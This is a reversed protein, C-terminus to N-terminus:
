SFLSVADQGTQQLELSISQDYETPANTVHIGQGFDFSEKTHTAATVKLVGFPVDSAAWLTGTNTTEVVKILEPQKPDPFREKTAVIFDYRTASYSGTKVATPEVKDAKKKIAQAFDKLVVFGPGFNTAFLKIDEAKTYKSVPEKEVQYDIERIDLANKQPDELYAAWSKAPALFKVKRISLDPAGSKPILDHEIWFMKEHTAPDDTESLLASRVVDVRVTNGSTTTVLYLAYSGPRLDFQFGDIGKAKRGSGVGGCGLFWGLILISILLRLMRPTM